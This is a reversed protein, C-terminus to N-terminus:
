EKRLVLTIDYTATAGPTTTSLLLDGTQGSGSDKKGGYPRFDEYGSGTLVMATVDSTHDWTLKVSTFGYIAWRAEMITLKGPEAGSLTLTSKDVKIVNSEGTGDSVNTLHVVYESGSDNLATTTVADAM